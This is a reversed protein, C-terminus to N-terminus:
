KQEITNPYFYSVSLLTWCRLLMNGKKIIIEDSDIYKKRKIVDQGKLSDWRSCIWLVGQVEMQM